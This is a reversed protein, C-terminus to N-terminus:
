DLLFEACLLLALASPGDTIEGRRAMGLAEQPPFLRVEMVEMAERQPTGLRVGTALYVQAVESGIGNMTYFRAVFRLREAEGGVEELLERRAMEEPAVGPQMGGAPVEWCWDDVAYRYQYVLVVQGDTTLPVIWVAGPHEVVTYTSDSGDPLRVRDQRLNYWQSRWIYRSGLSLIPKKDPM